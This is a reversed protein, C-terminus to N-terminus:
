RHAYIRFANAIAIGNAELNKAMPLFQEAPMPPAVFGLNGIWYPNDFLESVLGLSKEDIARELRVLRANGFVDEKIMSAPESKWIRQISSGALADVIDVLVSSATPLKGAGRGYYLVNDSISSTIIVANYVDNVSAFLSNKPVAMPFVAASIKDGDIVAKAVLKITCSFKGAFVFDEKDIKEVGEANIREPEVNKGTVTSLLIALKRRPDDGKIDDSPDKEAYGMEQAQKLAERFSMGSNEMQTLIYNTTGNLIGEIELVREIELTQCLPKLVPTGGGVSAEFLYKVGKEQARELLEAGHKAVLAKNSTVVHKGAELAKRTFEYAAGVGGMTEVVLAIGPDEIIKGLDNTILGEAPDGPFPRIDLIAKVELPEGLKKALLDQSREVAAYVGSGVIGYGMIAIGAM